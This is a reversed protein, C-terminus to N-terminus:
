GSIHLVNGVRRQFLNTKMPFSWDEASKGGGGGGGGGGQGGRRLFSCAVGVALNHYFGQNEM